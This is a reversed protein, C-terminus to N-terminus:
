EYIRAEGDETLRIESDETIRFYTIVPAIGSSVIKEFVAGIANGIATPM